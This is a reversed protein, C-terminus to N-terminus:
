GTAETPPAEISRIHSDECLSHVMVEDPKFELHHICGNWQTYRITRDTVGLIHNLLVRNFAGHAVVAVTGGAPVESKLREVVRAARAKAEDATELGYYFWGDPAMPDMYEIPFRERLEAPPPGIFNGLDRCEALDPWVHIGQNHRKAIPTATALARLLPSAVLRDIKLSALAEDVALAQLEGLPTLPGDPTDVHTVNGTSQGHRILYLHM